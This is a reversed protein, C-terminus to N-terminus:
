MVAPSVLDFTQRHHHHGLGHAVLEGLQGVGLPGDPAQADGAAALAVCRQGIDAGLEVANGTLFADERALDHEVLLEVFPAQAVPEILSIGDNVYGAVELLTSACEARTHPSWM